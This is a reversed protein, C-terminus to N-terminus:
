YWSAIWWSLGSGEREGGQVTVTRVAEIVGSLSSAVIATVTRRVAGTPRRSFMMTVPVARTPM